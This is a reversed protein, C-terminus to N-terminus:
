RNTRRRKSPNPVFEGGAFRNIADTVEADTSESNLTFASGELRPCKAVVHSDEIQRSPDANLAFASGERRRTCVTGDEDVEIIVGLVYLLMRVKRDITVWNPNAKALEKSMDRRMRFRQGKLMQKYGRFEELLYKADEKPCNKLKAKAERVQAFVSESELPRVAEGPQITTQLYSTQRRTERKPNPSPDTPDTSPTTGNTGNATTNSSLLWVDPFAELWAEILFERL